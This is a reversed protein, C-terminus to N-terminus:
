PCIEPHRDPSYLFLEDIVLDELREPLEDILLCDLEPMLRELAAQNHCLAIKNEHHFPLTFPQACRQCLIPLDGALTLTLIPQDTTTDLHWHCTLLCPSLLHAPLRAELKLTLPPKLQTLYHLFAPKM